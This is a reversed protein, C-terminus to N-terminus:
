YTRDLSFRKRYLWVFLSMFSGGEIFRILSFTMPQSANPKFSYILALLLALLYSM